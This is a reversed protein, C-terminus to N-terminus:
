KLNLGERLEEALMKFAGMSNYRAAGEGGSRWFEADCFHETDRSLVTKISDKNVNRKEMCHLIIDPLIMHLSYIGPTKQIVYEKPDEFAEPMLEKLANWFSKVWETLVEDSKNKGFMVLFPRLSTSFSGESAIAEPRPPQNPRKIRQYWVSRSDNYLKDIIQIAILKWDRGLQKLRDKERPDKSAIIKLLREALDTRVRKQTSNVIFFQKVEELKDVENMIVVPLIFEQLDKREYEEIAHRLGWIRHQGDVIFLQSDKTINIKGICSGEHKEFAIKKRASLLIATPLIADKENLYKSVKTYHTTIPTRQYGQQELLEDIDLDTENIDPKWTDIECNEILFKAPLSTVYFIKGNQKFEIAEFKM